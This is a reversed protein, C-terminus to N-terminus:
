ATRGEGQVLRGVLRGLWSPVTVTAVTAQAAPCEPPVRSWFSPEGMSVHFKGDADLTVVDVRKRFWATNVPLAVRTTEWRVQKGDVFAIGSSVTVVHCRRVEAVGDLVVPDQVVRAKM